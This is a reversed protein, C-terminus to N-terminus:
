FTCVPWGAKRRTQRSPLLTNTVMVFRYAPRFGASWIWTSRCTSRVIIRRKHGHRRRELTFDLQPELRDVLCAGGDLRRARQREEPPPQLLVGEQVVLVFREAPAAAGQPDTGLVALAADGELPGDLCRRHLQAVLELGDDAVARQQEPDELLQAVVHPEA